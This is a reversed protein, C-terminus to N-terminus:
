ADRPSPSTYLLCTQNIIISFPFNISNIHFNSSQALAIEELGDHNFVEISLGNSYSLNLPYKFKFCENPSYSETIFGENLVTIITSTELTNLLNYDNDFTDNENLCSQCLFSFILVTVYINFKKM